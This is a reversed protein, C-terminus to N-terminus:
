IWSSLVTQPIIFWCIRSVICPLTIYKWLVAVVNQQLAGTLCVPQVLGAWVWGGSDTVLMESSSRYFSSMLSSKHKM